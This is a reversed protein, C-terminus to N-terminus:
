KRRGSEAPNRGPPADGGARGWWRGDGSGSAPHGSEGSPLQRAGAWPQNGAAGSFIAPLGFCAMMTMGWHFASAKLWLASQEMKLRKPTDAKRSLLGYWSMRRGASNARASKATLALTPRVMAEQRWATMSMRQQM